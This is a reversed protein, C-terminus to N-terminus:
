GAAELAAICNTYAEGSTSTVETGVGKDDPSALLVFRQGGDQVAWKYPGTHITAPMVPATAVTTPPGGDPGVPDADGQGQLEALMSLIASNGFMDQLENRIQESLSQESGSSHDQSQSALQKSM